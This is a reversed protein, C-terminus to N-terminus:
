PTSPWKLPFDSYIQLCKVLEDMFERQHSVLYFHDGPFMRLEFNQHTCTSWGKMEELTAESDSRGLLATVSCNLLRALSPCYNKEILKYDNRVAPLVLDLIDPHDFLITSSTNGLAYLEAIIAEDNLLHVSGHRRYQPAPHASVFLHKIQQGHSSELRQAVEYAISAGMSHGFLVLPLDHKSEIVEVIQDVLRDMEDILPDNIRDERGPYQVAYLNIRNPLQDSWNKYFSASGGAHPFCIMRIVAKTSEPQWSRLWLDHNPTM